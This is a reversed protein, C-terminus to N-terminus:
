AKRGLVVTSEGRVYDFESFYRKLRVIDAVTVDGDGDADAGPGIKLLSVQTEPDRMAFYKKLRIIDLASVVGDENVDGYLTDLVTIKGSVTKTRVKNEGSVCDSVKLGIIYDGDKLNEPVKVYLTVLLGGNDSSKTDFLLSSGLTINKFVTGNEARGPTFGDPLIPSIGLVDISVDSKLYVEVAATDGPRSTVSGVTIVAFDGGGSSEPIVPDSVLVGNYANIANIVVYIPLGVDAETLVYSAGSAPTSYGEDTDVVIIAGNRYWTYIYDADAPVISVEATLTGGVVADGKITVTGSIETKETTIYAVPGSPSAIHYEDAAWRQRFGYTTGPLLDSFVNNTVWNIGDISYEYGAHDKLVITTDTKSHCVPAPPAAQQSLLVEVSFKDKFGEFTVEIVKEGPTSSDFESFEIETFLESEEDIKESELGLYDVRLVFGSPDFQEFYRYNVKTPLRDVHIATIVKGTPEVIYDRKYIAGCESCYHDDFLGEGINRLDVREVRAETHTSHFVTKGSNIYSVTIGSTSVPRQYIYFNKPPVNEFVPSTQWAVGDTSYQYDVETNEVFTLTRDLISRIKPVGVILVKLPVSPASAPTTETACKRAYFEVIVDTPLSAFTASKQWHEKDTSYEIGDLASLTVTTGEILEARPADPPNVLTVSVEVSPLSAAYDLTEAIRQTLRYSKGKELKEFVPSSQWKGGDLRYEYGDVSKFTLSDATMYEIQPAVPTHPNVPKMHAPFVYYGLEVDPDGFTVDTLSTMGRFSFDGLYTIGEDIVIHKVETELLHWPTEESSMYDATAGSGFIHLTSTAPDYGWYNESGDGVTFKIKNARFYKVAASDPDYSEVNLTYDKLGSFASAGISTVSSPITISTLGTCGSIISAGIGTVAYGDLVYPIVLGGSYHKYIFSTITAKGDSVTYIFDSDIVGGDATTVTLATSAPSAYSTETEAVRIYFTHSTNPLFGTFENSTQWNTKDTSYEMGDIASLVVRRAEIKEAVPADPAPVSYKLTTIVRASPDSPYSTSTEVTRVYVTYETRAKLGSFVNSSQWSIMDLSYEANQVPVLAISDSDVKLPSPANPISPITKYLPIDNAIAYNYGATKYNATIILNKCGTFASSGISTVSDPITISTLETCGYFAYNGISTVSDPITVSTLGTCDQFANSGIRTVSDPITISTLGKCHLFASGGIRTVSDPITISTLNECFYFAYSGISTVGSNIIVTKVYSRYRWWPAITQYNGSNDYSSMSGSGFITLKGTSTELSWNVNTGCTGSTTEASVKTM